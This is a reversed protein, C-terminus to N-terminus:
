QYVAQLKDIGTRKLSHSPKHPLEDASHHKANSELNVALFIGKHNSLSITADAMERSLVVQINRPDCGGEM